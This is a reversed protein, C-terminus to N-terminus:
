PQSWYDLVCVKEVHGKLSAGFAKHAPHPLYADRAAESAFTLFFCHTLGQNLKEPSVNTGWEFGTIGPIKTPLARFAAEIDKVQEPTTNATFQFMVVHRLVKEPAAAGKMKACPCACGAVLGVVLVLCLLAIKKM